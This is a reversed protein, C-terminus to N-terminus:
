THMHIFPKKFEWGGEAFSIGVSDGSFNLDLHILVLDTSVFIFRM